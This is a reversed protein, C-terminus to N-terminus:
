PDASKRRSWLWLFGICVAFNLVWWGLQRSSGKDSPQAASGAEALMGKLEERKDGLTVLFEVSAPGPLGLDPTQVAYSGDSEAVAPHTTGRLMVAVVANGVPANDIIRSLHIAMRDAQVTGVALLDSSRAEVRSRPGAVGAPASAVEGTATSALLAAALAFTAPIKLIAGASRLAALGL